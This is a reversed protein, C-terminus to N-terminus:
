KANYFVLGYGEFLERISGFVYGSDNVTKRQAKEFVGTGDNYVAFVDRSDFWIGERKENVIGM